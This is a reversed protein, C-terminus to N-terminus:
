EYLIINEGDKKQKLGTTFCISEVVAEISKNDHTGSIIHKSNSQLIVKKRYKRNITKLVEGIPEKNFFLTGEVWNSYLNEEFTLKTLNGTKKNISLHESPTVRLQLDLDSVNVLVKGSSVTVNIYDDDKYAKLNFSTGLVKVQTNGNTIVFPKDPDRVVDFFGEGVMEITRNEENFDSPIVLKSESNLRIYTGDALTYEKTEGQAAIVEKYTIQAKESRGTLYYGAGIALLLLVVSAIRYVWNRRSLSVVRAPPNNKEKIKQLLEDVEKNLATVREEDPFSTKRVIQEWASQSVSDFAQNDDPSKLWNLLTYLEQETCRNEIYKQLLSVRITHQTQEDM